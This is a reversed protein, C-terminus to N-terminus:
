IHWIFSILRNKEDCWLSCCCCFCLLFLVDYKIIGLPPPPLPFPVKLVNGVSRINLAKHSVFDVQIKGLFDRVDKLFRSADQWQVGTLQVTLFCPTLRGFYCMRILFIIQLLFPLLSIWSQSFQKNGWIMHSNQFPVSVNESPTIIFCPKQTFGM